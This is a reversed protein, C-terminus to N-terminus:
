KTTFVRSLFNEMWRHATYKSYTKHEVTIGPRTASLVLGQRNLVITRGDQMIDVILNDTAKDRTIIVSPGESQSEKHLWTQQDGRDVATNLKDMLRRAVVPPHQASFQIPVAAQVPTFTM